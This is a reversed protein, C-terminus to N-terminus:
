MDELAKLAGKLIKVQNSKSLTKRNCELHGKFKNALESAAVINGTVYGKNPDKREITLCKDPSTSGVEIPMGTYFCKKARMVNKLGIFTLDFEIGRNKSSSMLSVYKKAVKEDTIM